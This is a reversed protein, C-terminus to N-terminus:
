SSTMNLKSLIYEDSYTNDEEIMLFYIEKFIRGNEMKIDDLDSCLYRRAQFDSYLIPFLIETAMRVAHPYLITINELFTRFFRKPNKYYFSVIGDCFLQTIEFNKTKDDLAYMLVVLDEINTSNVMLSQYQSLEPFIVYLNDNEEFLRNQQLFKAIEDKTKM